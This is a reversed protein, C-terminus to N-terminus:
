PRSLTGVDQPTISLQKVRTDKQLRGFLIGPDLGPMALINILMMAFGLRPLTLICTLM